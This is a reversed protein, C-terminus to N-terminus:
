CYLVVCCFLSVFCLLVFHHLVFFYWVIGCLPFCCCLLKVLKVLSEAAKKHEPSAFVRAGITKRTLHGKISKQIGTAATNKTEDPEEKVLEGEGGVEGVGGGEGEGEKLTSRQSEPKPESKTQREKHPNQQTQHHHQHPDVRLITESTLDLFAARLATISELTQFTAPLSKRLLSYFGNLISSWKQDFNYRCGSGGCIPPSIFEYLDALSATYKAPIKEWGEWDQVKRRIM